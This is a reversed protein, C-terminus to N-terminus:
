SHRGVDQKSETPWHSCCCTQAPGQATASPLPSTMPPLPVHSFGGQVHVRPLGDQETVIRAELFYGASLASGTRSEAMFV